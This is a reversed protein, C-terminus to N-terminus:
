YRLIRTSLELLPQLANPAFKRAFLSCVEVPQGNYMCREKEKKGELREMFDESADEARFMAPHSGGRSWDLWTVSRNAISMPAEITLVTPLYHEDVYCPPLCVGWFRPWYRGNGVVFVALQRDM